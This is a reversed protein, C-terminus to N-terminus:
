IHILSLYSVHDPYFGQVIDVRDQPLASVDFDADPAVIAIRGSPPLELGGDDLAVSLRSGAM